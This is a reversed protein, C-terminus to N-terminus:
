VVLSSEINLWLINLGSVLKNADPSWAPNISISSQITTLSEGTRCDVLDMRSDESPPEPLQFVVHKGTPSIIPPYRSYSAVEIRRSVDWLTVEYNDKSLVYTLTWGEPAVAMAAFMVLVFILSVRIAWALTHKTM